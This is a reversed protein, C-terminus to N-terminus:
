CWLIANLLEIAIESQRTQARGVTKSLKVM